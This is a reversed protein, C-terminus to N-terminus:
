ARSTLKQGHERSGKKVHECIFLYLTELEAATRGKPDLEQATQGTELANEYARYQSLFFPCVQLEFTREIMGKADEFQKRAGPEIRNLLVYVSPNGAIRLLDHVKGLTELEGVVAKSPILVLDSHRAANLASDDNRGATDIIVLDAGGDRAGNLIPVLRSAQASVVAPGDDGRRDKWNAASAQPDLDILAVDQGARTAAVALGLASTTKGCGGKSGIFSVTFM